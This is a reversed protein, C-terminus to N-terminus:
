GPESKCKLTIQLLVREDVGLDVVYCVHRLLKRIFRNISEIRMGQKLFNLKQCFFQMFFVKWM